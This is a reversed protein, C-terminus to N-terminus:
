SSAHFTKMSTFNYGGGHKNRDTRFTKYNSINFRQNPFSEDIKTGSLLCTYINTNLEQVAGIKM